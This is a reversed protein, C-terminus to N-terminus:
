QWLRMLEDYFAYSGCIESNEENEYVFNGGNRHEIILDLNMIYSKDASKLNYERSVSKKWSICIKDSKQYTM